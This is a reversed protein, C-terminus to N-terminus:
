PRIEFEALQTCPAGANQTIDVRYHSFLGPAPLCFLKTELRHKWVEGSHGDLRQWHQGDNSGSLTWVKPDREPADNASTMTYCRAPAAQKLAVEFYGTPAFTLWKTNSNADVLSALTEAPANEGSGKVTAGVTLAPQYRPNEGWATLSSPVNKVDEGWSSATPAMTLELKGGAHLMEHTLYPKDYAKGNWAASAIYVNKESNGHAEITFAPGGDPHLTVTDFLPSGMVYEGFGPATSYFGLANMVYWASMEGEDEDGPYGFGDSTGPVYLESLARRVWYQTKSPRGAYAYLHLLHHIPENGIAFQGFGRQGVAQAETMEHIVGGYGGVEFHPDASMLEDLAKEFAPRGGFLSVLGAGDQMPAFRYHWLDGETWAYGWVFPDFSPYPESIRGAADRSRFFRTAPDWLNTYGLARNHFYEADDTKGLARAFVSLGFDNVSDEMTRSGSQDTDDTPVYGLFASRELGRRGRGPEHTAVMANQVSAEYGTQWDWNRIGKAYADAFILDTHTGIMSEWYGPKSWRVTWGGDQYSNVWGDLMEGTQEPFLVTFLPWLARYTDWFGNGTWLKRDLHTKDDFPSHYQSRTTDRGVPEWHMKPFALVRYLTSYFTIQDQPRGGTVVARGLASDWKAKSQASLSEITQDALELALNDSAQATSVYSTGIRVNITGGLAFQLGAVLGAPRSLTQIARDFEMVFYTRAGGNEIQGEIRRDGRQAVQATAAGAGNLALWATGRTPYQFRFIGGRDSPAFEFTIDYRDLKNRYYYPHAVENARQYPSRRATYDLVLGGTMPMLDLAGFDEGWVTPQHTLKIGTIAPDKYDYFWGQQLDATGVAWAAMGFPTHVAPYQNGRSLSPGENNTGMFINVLDALSPAGNTQAQLCFSTIGILVSLLGRASM